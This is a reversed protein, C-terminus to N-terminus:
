NTKSREQAIWAEVEKRDFVRRGERWEAKLPLRQKHLAVRLAGISRGTLASLEQYTVEDNNM